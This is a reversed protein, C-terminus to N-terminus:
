RLIIQFFILVVLQYPLVEPAEYVVAKLGLKRAIWVARPAFTKQTVIVADCIDITSQRIDATVTGIQMQAYTVGESLVIASM